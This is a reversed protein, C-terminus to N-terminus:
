EAHLHCRDNLSRLRWVGHEYTVKTIATNGFTFPQRRVAPMNLMAAVVMGLTGGHSVAVLTERSTHKTTMDSLFSEVRKRMDMASEGNPIQTEHGEVHMGPAAAAIEDGTLGTWDGMNYERLRLDLIVERDCTRAIAKATEAARSLPSTYVASIHKNAFRRSVSLAQMKGVDDLPVDLWGQVRGTANYATQGHRVLYLTLM